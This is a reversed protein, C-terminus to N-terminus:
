RRRRRHLGVARRHLCNRGAGGGRKHPLLVPQAINAEHLQLKCSFQYTVICRTDCAAVTQNFWPPKVFPASMAHVFSSAPMSSPVVLVGIGLTTKVPTKNLGQPPTAIKYTRFRTLFLTNFEQLIHDVFCSLLGGGGGGVAVCRRYTYIYQVNVKPLPPPAPSTLSFTSPCCNVLNTSFILM